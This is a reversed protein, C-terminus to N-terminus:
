TDNRRFPEPLRAWAVVEDPDSHDEFFCDGHDNHFTDIAVYGGATSVLVEECDDPLPCNYKEITEGEIIGDFLEADEATATVTEFTIENWISKREMM